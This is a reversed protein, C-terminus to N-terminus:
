GGHNEDEFQAKLIEAFEEVYRGSEGKRWFACYNRKIPESGRVLPVRALSSGYQIHASRGELPMFGRGGLILLRAEEVNEAYLFECRLGVINQYYDRETERQEQSTVLICPTNKLDEPTVSHLSALPSRSSLEVSAEVTALILNVYADSFVRRQDNLAIDVQGTVLLHYLEEHNGHEIQVSVDPHKATFLEVARHFESGSYCRLYGIRLVAENGHALKGAEKCMREYDATLVLSKQYFYEGAPTLTFRRNKRELLAFGLEAELAQIQQSIASQSIHCEEAAKSFSSNRVVSQFYRLKSLM